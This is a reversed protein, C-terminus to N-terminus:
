GPTTTTTTTTTSTTTPETPGTPPQTSDSLQYTPEENQFKSAVDDAGDIPSSKAVPSEGILVVILVLCALMM